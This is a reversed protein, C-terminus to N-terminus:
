RGPQRATVDIEVKMRADIMQAIIATNAPRIDRMTEGWVGLVAPVLSRDAIYTTVKVIDALGAGAQALAAEINRITQRTQEAADESITDRRYDFGTCGAMFIWGDEIVARSYGYDREFRSGSSILERV